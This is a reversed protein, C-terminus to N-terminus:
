VHVLKGEIIAYYEWPKYYPGRYDKLSANRWIHFKEEMINRVVRTNFAPNNLLALLFELGMKFRGAKLEKQKKENANLEKQWRNIGRWNPNAKRAVYEEEANEYKGRIFKEDYKEAKDQARALLEKLEAHEKMLIAIVSDISNELFVDYAKKIAAYPATKIRKKDIDRM